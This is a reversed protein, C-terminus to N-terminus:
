FTHKYYDDKSSCKVFPIFIFLNQYYFKYNSTNLVEPPIKIGDKINSGEVSFHYLQSESDSFVFHERAFILKDNSTCSSATSPTPFTNENETTPSLITLLPSTNLPIGSAAAATVPESQEREEISAM